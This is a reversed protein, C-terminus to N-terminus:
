SINPNERELMHICNKSNNYKPDSEERCGYLLHLLVSNLRTGNFKLICTFSSVAM